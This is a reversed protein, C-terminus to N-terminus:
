KRGTMEARFVFISISVLGAGVRGEGGLMDTGDAKSCKVRRPGEEYMEFKGGAGGLEGVSGSRIRKGEHSL